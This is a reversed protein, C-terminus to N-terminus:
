APVTSSVGSQACGSNASGVWKGGLYFGFCFANSGHSEQRVRRM